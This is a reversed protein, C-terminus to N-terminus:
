PPLSGEERLKTPTTSAATSLLPYRPSGRIVAVVAFIGVLIAFWSSVLWVARRYATMLKALNQNGLSDNAKM